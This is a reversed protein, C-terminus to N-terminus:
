KKTVIAFLYVDLHLRASLQLDFTTKVGVLTERHAFPMAYEGLM